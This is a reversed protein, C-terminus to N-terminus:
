SIISMVNYVNLNYSTIIQNMYIQLIIVVTPNNLVEM